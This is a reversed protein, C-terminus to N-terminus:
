KLPHIPIFPVRLPDELFTVEFGFYTSKNIDRMKPHAHTKPPGHESATPVHLNGESDPLDADGYRSPSKSPSSIGSDILLALAGDFLM